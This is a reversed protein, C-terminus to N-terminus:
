RIPAMVEHTQKLGLFPVEYQYSLRARGCYEGVDNGVIDVDLRYGRDAADARCASIVYQNYHGAEIDSVSETLFTDAKRAEISAEIVGIGTFSILMLFFVGLFGKFISEM